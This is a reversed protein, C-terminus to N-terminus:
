RRRHLPGALCCRLRPRLSIFEGGSADLPPRGGSLVAGNHAVSTAVKKPTPRRLGPGPVHPDSAVTRKHANALECSAAACRVQAVIKAAEATVRIPIGAAVRPARPVPASYGCNM